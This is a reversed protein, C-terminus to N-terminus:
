KVHQKTKIRASKGSRERMYTLYARRVKGHKIVDIKVILPSHFPFTAEVGVGSADKRITFAKSLNKGTIKIVVGDFRQVRTKNGEVIKTHVSVTDGAKFNPLDNRMQANEIRKIIAAKNLKKM